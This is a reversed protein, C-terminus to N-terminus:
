DDARGPLSKDDDASGLVVTLMLLVALTPMTSVKATCSREFAIAALMIKRPM